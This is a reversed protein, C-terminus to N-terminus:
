YIYLTPTTKGDPNKECTVRTSCGCVEAIHIYDGIGYFVDSHTPQIIIHRSDSEETYTYFKATLVLEWQTMTESLLISILREAEKINKNIM